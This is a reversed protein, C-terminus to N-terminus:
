LVKFLLWVPRIIYVFRKEKTIKTISIWPYICSRLTIINLKWYWITVRLIQGLYLIFYSVRFLKLSKHFLELVKVLFKRIFRQVIWILSVFQTAWNRGIWNLMDMGILIMILLFKYVKATKIILKFALSYITGYIDKVTKLSSNVFRPVKSVISNRCM